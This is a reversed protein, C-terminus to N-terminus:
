LKYFYLELTKSNSIIMTIYVGNKKALYGETPNQHQALRGGSTHLYSLKTGLHPRFSAVVFVHKRFNKIDRYLQKKM